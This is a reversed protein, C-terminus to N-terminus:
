RLEPLTREEAAQRTIFTVFAPSNASVLSQGCRGCTWGKYFEVSFAASNPSEEFKKLLDAKWDQVGTCPVRYVNPQQCNLLQIFGTYADTRSKRMRHIKKLVRFDLTFGGLAADDFTTDWISNTAGVVEKLALRAPLSFGQTLSLSLTALPHTVTFPQFVTTGQIRPLALQSSLYDLAHHMRYKEAVRILEAIRAFSQITPAPKEPHSYSIAFLSDLVVHNEPANVIQEESSQTSSSPEGVIFMDAFFSSTTALVARSLSFRVGDSAVIIFDRRGPYNIPLLQSRRPPQVM